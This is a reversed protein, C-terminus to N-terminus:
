MMFDYGLRSRHALEAPLTSGAQRATIELAFRQWASDTGPSPVLQRPAQHSASRGFADILAMYDNESPSILAPPDFARCRTMFNNAIWKGYPLNQIHPM